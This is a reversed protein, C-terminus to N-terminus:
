PAPPPTPVVGQQEPWVPRIELADLASGRAAAEVGRVAPSDLLEALAAATGEVVAAFVCACQGAYAAAEAAVRDADALYAARDDADQPASGEISEALARFEREQEQKDAATREYVARLISVPDNPTPVEIVEALEGASPARLYVQGVGFGQLTSQLEAPTVYDALLVLAIYRGEADSEALALVDERARSLYSTVEAGVEPGLATSPTVSDEAVPTEVREAAREDSARDLVFAGASLFLAAVVLAALQPVDRVLGVLGGRGSREELPDAVPARSVTSPSGVGGPLADVPPAIRSRAGPVRMLLRRLAVAVRPVLRDDLERLKM